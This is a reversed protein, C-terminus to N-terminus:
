RRKKFSVCVGAVSDERVVTDFDPLSEMYELYEATGEHRREGGGSDGVNHAAICGGAALRPILAKAYDTYWEKDADIFVFDFPGPLENVLRHADGLKAEVIRSLGADAFLEVAQRHQAEDIELTVLKGGTKSLAWGIWLASHGTSTGIELARTYGKEVVIDHLIRGDQEPVNWVRWKGRMRALVAQVEQDTKELDGVQALAPVTLIWLLAGLISRRDRMQWGGAVVVYPSEAGEESPESLAPIHRMM